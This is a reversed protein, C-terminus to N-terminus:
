GDRRWEILDPTSRPLAPMNERCARLQCLPRKPRAARM